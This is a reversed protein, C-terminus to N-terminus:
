NITIPITVSKGDLYYTLSTSGSEKAYINGNRDVEFLSEDAFHMNKEYKSITKTVQKNSYYEVNIEINLQNGVNFVQNSSELNVVYDYNAIYEWWNNSYGDSTYGTVHPFLSTWFRTYLRDNDHEENENNM